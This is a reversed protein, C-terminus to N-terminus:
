SSQFNNGAPLRSDIASREISGELVSNFAATPTRRSPEIFEASNGLTIRDFLQLASTKDFACHLINFIGVGRHNNVEVFQPAASLLCDMKADLLVPRVLQDIGRFNGHLPGRLEDSFKHAFFPDRREIDGARALAFPRLTVIVRKAREIDGQWSQLHLRLRTAELIILAASM